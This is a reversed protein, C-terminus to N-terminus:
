SATLRVRQFLAAESSRVYFRDFSGVSGFISLRDSAQLLQVLWNSYSSSLVTLVAAAGAAAPLLLSVPEVIGFCNSLPLMSHPRARGFM